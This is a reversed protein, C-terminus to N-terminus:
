TAGSVPDATLAVDRDLRAHAHHGAGHRAAERDEEGIVDAGRAEEERGIARLEREPHLVDAGAVVADRRGREVGGVREVGVLEHSAAAPEVPMEVDVVIRHRADGVLV